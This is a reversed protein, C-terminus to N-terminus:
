RTESLVLLDGHTGYGALRGGSPTGDFTLMRWGDGAVDPDPPILTPWPINTPYPADLTGVDRMALDLVPFRRRVRRRNDRGDSALVQWGGDLHVLTTGETARRDTAAGLLRLDRLDPGGALVPHFDFFSRASVYGVLWSGDDRRVLHPDWQGVSPGDTPLELPRTALVHEGRTLDADTEALTIRVRAGARDREAAPFDSWTSTAVLWRDGDRLVHTAHDGHVGGGESRVFHLAGRRRVEGGRLEWLSTHATGFFGPGASTASFLVGGGPLRYPSGDAPTSAGALAVTVSGVPWPILREVWALSDAGSITEEGITVTVEGDVFVALGTTHPALAAFGPSQDVATSLMLAYGRVLQRGQGGNAAVMQAHELYPKVVEPDTSGVLLVVPGIRALTGEGPGPVVDVHPWDEATPATVTM